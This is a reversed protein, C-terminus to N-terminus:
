IGFDCTLNGNKKIPFINLYVQFDILFIFNM